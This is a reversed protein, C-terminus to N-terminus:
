SDLNRLVSLNNPPLAKRAPRNKALRIRATGHKPEAKEILSNPALAVPM